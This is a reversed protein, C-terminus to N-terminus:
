AAVVAFSSGHVPLLKVIEGPRQRLAAGGPAVRQAEQSAARQGGDPHCRLGIGFTLDLAVTLHLLLAASTLFVPFTGSGGPLIHRRLSSFLVFDLILSQLSQQPLKVWNVTLLPLHQLWLPASHLVVSWHQKPTHVLPVHWSSTM